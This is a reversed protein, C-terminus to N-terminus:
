SSYQLCVPDYFVLASARGFQKSVERHRPDYKSVNLLVDIVPQAELVAAYSLCTQMKLYAGYDQVFDVAEQMRSSSRNIGGSLEDNSDECYDKEDEDNENRSLQPLIQQTFYFTTLFCTESRTEVNLEIDEIQERLNKKKRTPNRTGSTAATMSMSLPSRMNTHDDITLSDDSMTSEATSETSWAAKDLPWLVRRQDWPLPRFTKLWVPLVDHLLYRTAMMVNSDAPQPKMGTFPVMSSLHSMHSGGTATKIQDPVTSSVKTTLDFLLATIEEPPLAQPKKHQKLVKAMNEGFLFNGLENALAADMDETTATGVQKSEVL